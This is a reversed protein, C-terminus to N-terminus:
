GREAPKGALRAISSTSVLQHCQKQAGTTQVLHTYTEAMIHSRHIDLAHALVLAPM